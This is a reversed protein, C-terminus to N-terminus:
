KVGFQALPLPLSDNLEGVLRIDYWLADFAHIGYHACVVLVTSYASLM